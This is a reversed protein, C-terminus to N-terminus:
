ATKTYDRICGLMNSTYGHNLVMSLPLELAAEGFLQRPAFVCPETNLVWANQQEVFYQFAPSDLEVLQKKIVNTAKGHRIEEHLMQTLPILSLQLDQDFGSVGVVYGTRENAIASAALLGCWTTYYCDFFSPIGCRGEYGFFHTRISWKKPHRKQMQEALLQEIDIDSVKLNGHSDYLDEKDGLWEELLPGLSNSGQPILCDVIGEPILVVGYDMGAEHRQMMVSELKDLIGELGLNQNLVDETILTLHPQTRLAVELSVHSANRGMLKVFHWYKRTSRCDQILNGIQESYIKTATDFGFSIPINPGFQLDGDITKPVGVVICKGALYEALFAANTNSDDGGIIVIGNLNYQDVVAEVKKFQEPSSLKTRDTGLYDFGGTCFIQDCNEIEFLNGNILGKPGDQVGFLQHPAKLAKKLGVVVNHGGAAPGGSFLVAIRLTKDIEFAQKNHTLIREQHDALFPLEKKLDDSLTKLPQTSNPEFNLFGIQNFADEFIAKLNEQFLHVPNNIKDQLM